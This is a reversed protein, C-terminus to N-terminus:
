ELLVENAFRNFADFAVHTLRCAQHPQMPRVQIALHALQAHILCASFVAVVIEVIDLDSRTRAAMPTRPLKIQKPGAEDRKDCIGKQEVTVKSLHNNVLTKCNIWQGQKSRGTETRIM